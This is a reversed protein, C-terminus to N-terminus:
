EVRETDVFDAHLQREKCEGTAERLIAETYEQASTGQRGADAKVAELAACVEQYLPRLGAQDPAALQAGLVAVSDPLSLAAPHEGLADADLPRMALLLKCLHTKLAQRAPNRAVIRSGSEAS